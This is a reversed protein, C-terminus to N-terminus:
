WAVALRYISGGVACFYIKAPLKRLASYFRAVAKLSIFAVEEQVKTRNSFAVM